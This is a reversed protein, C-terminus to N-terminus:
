SLARALAGDLVVCAALAANISLHRSVKATALGFGEVDAVVGGQDLRRCAELTWVELVIYSLWLAFMCLARGSWCLLAPTSFDLALAAPLSAGPNVTTCHRWIETGMLAGMSLGIGAGFSRYVRVLNVESVHPISRRAALLVAFVLLAGAHVTLALENVAHLLVTM